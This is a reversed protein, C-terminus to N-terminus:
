PHLYSIGDYCTPGSAVAIATTTTFGSYTVTVIYPSTIGYVYGKGAAAYAWTCAWVTSSTEAVGSNNVSLAGNPTDPDTAATAQSVQYRSKVTVDETKTNSYHATVTFAQTTNIGELNATTPSVSISQLEYTQGCSAMFLAM